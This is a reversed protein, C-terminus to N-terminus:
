AIQEPRSELLDDVHLVIQHRECALDVPLPDVALDRREVAVLSPGPDLGPEHDPKQQELVDVPQGVFAHALAPHM